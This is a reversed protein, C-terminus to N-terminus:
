FLITILQSIPSKSLMVEMIISLLHLNTFSLQRYYNKYDNDIFNNFCGGSDSEVINVIKVRIDMRSLVM